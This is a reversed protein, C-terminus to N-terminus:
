AAESPAAQAAAPATSPVIREQPNSSTEAEGKTRVNLSTHKVMWRNQIGLPTRRPPPPPPVSEHNARMRELLHPLRRTRRRSTRIGRSSRWFSYSSLRGTHCSLLMALGYPFISPHLIRDAVSFEGRGATSHCQIAQGAPAQRQAANRVM